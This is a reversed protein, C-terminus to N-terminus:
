LTCFSKSSFHKQAQQMLVKTTGSTPAVQVAQPAKNEKAVTTKSALVEKCSPKKKPKPPKWKEASSTQSSLQGDCTRRRKNKGKGLGQSEIFPKLRALSMDGEAAPFPTAQEASLDEIAQLSAISTSAQRLIISAQPLLQPAAQVAALISELQQQLDLLSPTKSAVAPRHPGEIRGEASREPQRAQIKLLM